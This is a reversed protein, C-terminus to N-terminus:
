AALKYAPKMANVAAAAWAAATNPDTEIIRELRTYSLSLGFSPGDSTTAGSNMQLALSRYGAASKKAFATLIVAKISSPTSSMDACVFRDVHGVTSSSNTTTDGDV